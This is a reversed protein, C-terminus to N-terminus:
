NNNTIQNATQGGKQNYSKVNITTQTDAKQSRTEKTIFKTVFITDHNLITDRVIEKKVGVEFKGIKFPINLIILTIVVVLSLLFIFFAGKPHEEIVDYLTRGYVRQNKEM